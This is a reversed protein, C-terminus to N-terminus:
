KKRAKKNSREEAAEEKGRKDHFNNWKETPVLDANPTNPVKMARRKTTAARYGMETMYVNKLPHQNLHHRLCNMSALAVEIATPRNREKWNRYAFAPDGRRIMEGSTVKSLYDLTGDRDIPMVYICAALVGSTFGTRNPVKMDDMADFNLQHKEMEILAEAQTLGTNSYLTGDELKRLVNLTAITRSHLGTLYSLTRTKGRDVPGKISGTKYYTVMLPVTENALVVAQLRHQGDILFGDADFAIGQHTLKWNGSRMDLTLTEVHAWNLGRNEPHNRELWAKAMDPTVLMSEFTLNSLEGSVEVSESEHM